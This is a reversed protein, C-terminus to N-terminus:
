VVLLEFEDSNEEIVIPDLSENAGILTGGNHKKRIAEFIEFNHFKNNLKGKRKFHTEQLTIIGANLHNVNNVSSQVKNACGACNASFIAVSQVANNSKKKRKQNKTKSNKNPKITKHNKQNTPQTCTSPGYGGLGGNKDNKLEEEPQQLDEGSTEKERPSPSFGRPLSHLSLQTDERM